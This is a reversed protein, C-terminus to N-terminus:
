MEGFGHEEAEDLLRREDDTLRDLADKARYIMGLNDCAKMCAIEAFYPDDKPLNIAKERFERYADGTWVDLFADSKLNGMPKKYGKCCPVVAGDTGIRTYTWGINCALNRTAEGDYGGTSADRSTIRRYFAGFGLISLFPVPVVFREKDISCKNQVPCATCEEVPYQFILANEEKNDETVDLRWSKRECLVDFRRIDDLEYKFDWSVAGYKVFRAFEKGEGTNEASRPTQNPDLELYDDRRTLGDLQTGILERDQATIALADSKGAIIDVPTFEVHDVLADLAFSIMDDIGGANVHNIVNYIKVHPRFRKQRKKEAHMNKLSARIAEFVKPKTGPHTKEYMDATGAWVSVTLNDLGLEVLKKVNKDTLMTGNTIVTCRLGHSKVRAVIALFDPHLMPDGAGSFQVMEAGARAADDIAKLVTKTALTRRFMEGTWRDGGMEYGHNWCGVCHLNCKNTLDIELIKPGAYVREQSRIGALHLNRSLFKVPTIEQVHGNGNAPEAHGNSHVPHVPHVDHVSHVSHVSSAKAGNGTVTGMGSVTGAGAYAADGGPTGYTKAMIEAASKANLFTEATGYDLDKERKFDEELTPVRITKGKEGFAGPDFSGLNNIQRILRAFREAVPLNESKSEAALENQKGETLNTELCEKGLKQVLALVRRIRNKREDISLGNGDTWLYHFDDKPLSMGWKGAQVHLETGTIIVCANISKIQDIWPANAEIMELTKQFDEETEGPFGVICFMCTKIGADHADRFVKTASEVTFLKGKNMLALVNDSGVELGLQLEFCGAAKLKRLLEPTLNKMPAAEANWRIPLKAEIIMDCLKDLMKPRGNLINDSITFSRYGLVEVDYKLEAFIHEATRSRYTGALDKGKCYVCKAVCGRSWELVLSNGHYQTMDFHKYTPFPVSDLDAISGRPTYDLSADDNLVIVGPIGRISRGDKVARVCDLLTEEGEGVIYGDIEHGAREFFITRYDPTFMAPGGLVITVEPARKRLMHVLEVACREKPDVVSVGVLKPDHALIEDVADDLYKRLGFLLVEWTDDNSWYNKNEVHWLLKWEEPARNYWAVNYDVVKTAFGRSDLYSALVAPGCPPNTFGWPPLNVIVVDIDTELSKDHIRQRVRAEMRRVPHYRPVFFDYNFVVDLGAVWIAMEIARTKRWNENNFGCASWTHEHGGDPLMIEYKQPFLEFATRSLVRVPLVTDIVDIHPEAQKLLRATRYFDEQKECPAGVMINVHTEIGAEHADRLNEMAVRATYPRGLQTLVRDSLSEIGFTLARCGAAKMKRYLDATMESTPAIDAHWHIPIKADILLDCMERLQKPNGNIILDQFRFGRVDFRRFADRMEEFVAQAPRYRAPGEKPQDGCHACRYRCGRSARINYQGGYDVPHLERYDPAPMLDLHKMPERPILKKNGDPQLYRVGRLTDISDGRVIRATLDALSEEPEGTVMYDCVTDAHISREVFSGPVSGFLITKREPDRARIMELIIKTLYNNGREAYLAIARSKRALLRDAMAAADLGITEMRQRLNDPHAWEDRRGADWFGRQDASAKRYAHINLDVVANAIGRAALYSSTQALQYPPASVDIPPAVGLVIDVSEKKRAVDPSEFYYNTQRVKTGMLRLVDLIQGLWEMRKEFTNAGDTTQWSVEWWDPDEATAIGFKEFKDHLISYEILNCTNCVCVENILQANGALFEITEGITQDTEGPFGVVINVWLNIGAERIDKLVRRCTAMKYGKGMKKVMAESGSEVGLTLTHCGASRLNSLISPQLAESIIANANWRIEEGWERVMNCFRDIEEINYNIQLDNFSFDRVGLVEVHHKIEEFLIEATRNRQPGMIVRDNCFLCHAKCGRSTVIPLNPTKYQSLDFDEFTPWPFVDLREVPKRQTIESYTYEGVSMVGPVDTVPRSERRARLLEILTNEGEPGMAFVDVLAQEFVRAAKQAYVGMGGVVVFAEPKRAKLRRIIEQTMNRNDSHVSFGYVDAESAILDEVCAELSERYKEWTSAIMSPWVWQTKTDMNWNDREIEDVARYVRINYDRVTVSFGAARASATLSALSLPPSEPGYPPCMALLLDFKEPM